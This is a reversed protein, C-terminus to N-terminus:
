SYPCTNLYSCGARGLSQGRGVNTNTSVAEPTCRHLYPRFQRQLEHARAHAPQTYLLGWESAAPHQGELREPILWQGNNLSIFTCAGPVHDGPVCKPRTSECAKRLHSLPVPRFMPTYQALASSRMRPWQALTALQSHRIYIYVYVVAVM